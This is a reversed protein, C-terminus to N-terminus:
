LLVKPRGSVEWLCSTKPMHLRPIVGVKLAKKKGALIIDDDDFHIECIVASFIALSCVLNSNYCDVIIILCVM